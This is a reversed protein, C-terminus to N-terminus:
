INALYARDPFVPIPLRFVNVGRMNQDCCCLFEFSDISRRVADIAAHRIPRTSGASRLIPPTQSRLGSARPTSKSRGNITIHGFGADRREAGDDLGVIYIQGASPLFGDPPRTLPRRSDHRLLLPVGPVRPQRVRRHRGSDDFATRNMVLLAAKPRRTSSVRRRGTQSRPASASAPSGSTSVARGFHGISGPGSWSTVPRAGAGRASLEDDAGPASWRLKAAQLMTLVDADPALNLHGIIEESATGIHYDLVKTTPGQGARALDDFLSSLEVPRNVEARVVQTGVGRKRVFMGKDVLEQIARRM